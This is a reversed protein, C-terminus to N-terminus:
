GEQGPEVPDESSEDADGTPDNTLGVRARYAAQSEKPKREPLTEGRAAAEVLLARYWAPHNPPDGGEREYLGSDLALAVLELTLAAEEVDRAPIGYIALHREPEGTSLRPAVFRLTAM